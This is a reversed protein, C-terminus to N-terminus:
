ESGASRQLTGQSAVITACALSEEKQVQAREKRGQVKRGCLADKTVGKGPAKEMRQKARTREKPNAKTKEKEAVKSKGIYDVEMPTAEDASARMPVMLSNSSDWRTTVAELQVIRDKLQEYSTSDTLWLHLHQRITMPCALLVAAVKADDSYDQGSIREYEQVLAEFQPLQESVTKKEEFQIRSLQSLLALSRARTAPQMEKLLVRWAEFGNEKKMHRILKLPRHRLYSTLLSYLRVAKGKTEDSMDDMVCNGNVNKEVMDMNSAMSPDIGKIYNVFSFKWDGWTKLEADRSEPKFLDPTKLHRSWGQATQHVTLRELAVAVLKLSEDAMIALPGVKPCYTKTTVGAGGEEVKEGFGSHAIIEWFRWNSVLVELDEEDTKEKLYEVKQIFRWNSPVVVIVEKVENEKPKWKVGEFGEPEQDVQDERRLGRDACLPHPDTSSKPLISGGQYFQVEQRAASGLGGALGSLIM